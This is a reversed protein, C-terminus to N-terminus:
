LEEKVQWFDVQCHRSNFDRHHKKIAQKGRLGSFRGSIINDGVGLHKAVQEISCPQLEQIADLVWAERKTLGPQIVNLYNDMSVQSLQRM